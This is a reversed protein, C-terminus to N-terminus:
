VSCRSRMFKELDELWTQLVQASLLVSLLDQDDLGGMAAPCQEADIKIGSRGLDGDSWHGVAVRM